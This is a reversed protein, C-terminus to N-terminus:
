LGHRLFSQLFDLVLKRRAKRIPPKMQELIAKLDKVKLNSASGRTEEMQRKEGGGRREEIM